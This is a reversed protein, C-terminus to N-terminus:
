VWNDKVIDLHTNNNPKQKGTFILIAPDNIDVDIKHHKWGIFKPADIIVHEINEGIYAQDGLVGDRNIDDYEKQIKDPDRQYMNWMHSYDGNWCMVSSNHINRYPEQVMYFLQQDLSTIVETINKCIVVDLDLYLVPGDFLGPRFIEIKNWYGNSDIILPITNYKTKRNSICYFNFNIDINRKIGNYLRDVDEESYSVWPKHDNRQDKFVCVVNLKNV